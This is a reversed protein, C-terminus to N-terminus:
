MLLKRLNKYHINILHIDETSTDIGVCKLKEVVKKTDTKTIEEFSPKCSPFLNLIKEIEENGEYGKGYYSRLLKVFKKKDQQSGHEMILSVLFNPTGRAMDEFADRVDDYEQFIRGLFFLADELIETTKADTGFYPHFLNSFWSFFEGGTKDAREKILEDVSKICSYDFKLMKKIHEMTIKNEQEWFVGQLATYAMRNFTEFIRNMDSFSIDGRRIHDQLAYNFGQLYGVSGAIYYMVKKSKSDIKFESLSDPCDDILDDASTIARCALDNVVCCNIINEEHINLEMGILSDILTYPKVKQIQVINMPYTVKEVYRQAERRIVESQKKLPTLNDYIKQLLM